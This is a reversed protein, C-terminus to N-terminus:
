TFPILAWITKIIAIVIKLLNFAFVIGLIFIVTKMPLLYGAMRIFSFFSSFVDPSVEWSIDPILSLLGRICNFLLTFFSETIM